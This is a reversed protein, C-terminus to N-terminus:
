PYTPLCPVKPLILKWPWAKSLLRRRACEELRGVAVLSIYLRLIAAARHTDPLVLPSKFVKLDVALGGEHNASSTKSIQAPGILVALFQESGPLAFIPFDSLLSGASDIGISTHTFHVLLSNIDRDKVRSQTDHPFFVAGIRLQGGGIGPGVVIENNLEAGPM